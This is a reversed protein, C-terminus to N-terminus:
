SFECFRCYGDFDSKRGWYSGIKCSLEAAQNFYEPYYLKVNLYEGNACGDPTLVGDFNKCPLCNNHSFVREDNEDKIDYIAPHWGIERDVLYFCDEDSLHAIPHAKNQVGNRKKINKIQRNIRNKESRVYGILDLDIKHKAIYQNIPIIKLEESCPSLMPHPIMNKEEFFKIVSGWRVSWRVCPFKGAAYRICDKMFKFTDPSHEKLQIALLHIEQPKFQPLFESALYCLLGASNIGGSLGILVKKGSLDNNFDLQM